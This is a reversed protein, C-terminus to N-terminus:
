LDGRALGTASESARSPGGATIVDPVTRRAADVGPLPVRAFCGRDTIRERPPRSSRRDHVRDESRAATDLPRITSSWATRAPRSGHTRISRSCWSTATAKWLGAGISSGLAECADEIVSLRAPARDIRANRDPARRGFVHVPLIARTRGVAAAEVLAPDTGLSDGDVTMASGSSAWSGSTVWDQDSDVPRRGVHAPPPKGPGCRAPDRGCVESQPCALTEM